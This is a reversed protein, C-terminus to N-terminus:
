AETSTLAEELCRSCVPRVTKEHDAITKPLPAEGAVVGAAEAVAESFLLELAPDGRHTYTVRVLPGVPQGANVGEAVDPSVFAAPCPGHSECIFTM